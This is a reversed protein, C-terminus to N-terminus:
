KVIHFFGQHIKDSDPLQLLWYYVGQTGGNGDWPNNHYDTAEFRKSGWRDFITVKNGPYYELCPLHFASNQHVMECAALNGDHQTGPSIVNPFLGLCIREDVMVLVATSDTCNGEGTVWVWYSTTMEPAVSVSATSDGTEWLYSIGGTATLTISDGVCIVTDNGAFPIVEPYSAITVTDTATCGFFDVATVVFTGESLGAAVAGEQVPNTNWSYSVSGIQGTALAIAQGETNQGQCINSTEVVSVSLQCIESCSVIQEPGSIITESGNAGIVRIPWETPMPITGGSAFTEWVTVSVGACLPSCFGFPCGSCDQFTNQQQWSYPGPGGGVALEGNETECVILPQCDNVTINVTDTYGCSLTLIIQHIGTGASAPDFVGNAADTIGPGSWSYTVDNICDSILPQLINLTDAADGVCFSDVQAVEAFCCSEAPVISVDEIYYYAYPNLLSGDGTNVITTNANNFFNGIVFYQEGGTATYNWQLKVWNTTDTIPECDYNLQPTEAILSNQSGPCANRLYQDSSFFVGMNNTAFPVNDGKSVFFSVCYDQGAVLPESTRGQVYERYNSLPEHTIIGVYRQGTRAQQWGLENDPMGTVSFGFVVNCPAFLDPSSCSDGAVNSNANDWTGALDARFSEGGFNACDSITQEFSPNVVLNQALVVEVSCVAVLLQIVSVSRGLFSKM